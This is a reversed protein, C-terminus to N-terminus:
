RCPTTSTWGTATWTNWTSSPAASKRAFSWSRGRIIRRTMINAKVVPEEIYDIVAPDPLNTPNDLEICGGNLTYVRYNVSPATTVLDLDFERELREQIVEMHLLGLFGCRFGFGLARSTEPEFLLAADNLKLKELADRLNELDAGDAPYIGCFVVSQIPKYGKLAEKAPREALTITDGAVTDGVSKISAAIYGVDGALLEDMPRLAPSFIGVETVDFERGKAMFRIRDGAKVRGEFVRV